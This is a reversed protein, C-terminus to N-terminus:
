PKPPCSSDAPEAKSELEKLLGDLEERVRAPLEPYELVSYAANQFAKKQDLALHAQAGHLKLQWPLRSSLRQAQWIVGPILKYEGAAGAAATFEILFAEGLEGKHYFPELLAFKTRSNAEPSCEAFLSMGAWSDHRHAFDKVLGPLSTAEQHQELQRYLLEWLPIHNRDAKIGEELWIAAEDWREDHQLIQVLNAYPAPESPSLAQARRFCEEARVLESALMSAIGEILVARFDDRQWLSLNFDILRLAIMPLDMGLLEDALGTLHVPSEPPHKSAFRIVWASFDAQELATPGPSKHGGYAKQSIGLWSRLKPGMPYVAFPQGGDQSSEQDKM